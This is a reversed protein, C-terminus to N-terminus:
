RWQIRRPTWILEADDVIRGGAGGGSEEGGAVDRAEHDGVAADAQRGRGGQSGADGDRREASWKGVVVACSGKEVAFLPLLEAGIDSFM